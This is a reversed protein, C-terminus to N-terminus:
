LNYIEAKGQSKYIGRLCSQLVIRPSLFALQEKEFSREPDGQSKCFIDRPYTEPIVRPSPRLFATPGTVLLMIAREEEQLM